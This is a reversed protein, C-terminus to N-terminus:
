TKGNLTHTNLLNRKDIQDETGEIGDKFVAM